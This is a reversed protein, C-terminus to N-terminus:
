RIEIINEDNIASRLEGSPEFSESVQSMIISSKELLQGVSSSDRNQEGNREDMKYSKNDMKQLSFQCNGSPMFHALTRHSHDVSM